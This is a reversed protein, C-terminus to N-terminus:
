YIKKLYRLIKKSIILNMIKIKYIYIDKYLNVLIYYNINIDNNRKKLNKKM